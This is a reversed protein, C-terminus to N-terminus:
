MGPQSGTGRISVTTQASAQKISRMAVVLQEMAHAQQQTSAAIQIAVQAAEEVTAALDRISEGARGALEMGSKAAESGQETVTVATNAARQIENLIDNVRTTAERSQGALHRMERAVVAFGLGEDGARAAEINANLALLRSQDAIDEVANIIEGIQQTRESLALISQAIDEVQRRITEMGTVTDAVANQGNKSVQMSQQAADAVAQAQRATEAITARMQVSTALTETVVTDLQTTHLQVQQMLLAGKLVSSIQGRLSEYITGDSPGAEFFVFGLQEEQFHLPAAVTSFAKHDSWLVPPVFQGSPFREGGLPVEIRGTENYAFILNSWTEPQEPDEYLALYCGPFGMEPLSNALTDFSAALDFTTILTLGIQRLREAQQKAQFERYAQARYTTQAILARAQQWLDEARHLHDRESLYPLVQRRLASLVGQWAKVDRDMMMAQRMIKDLTVLFAGSSKGQVDDSLTTLLETVWAPAIGESSIEGNEIMDSCIQEWRAALSDPLTRDAAAKKPAYAIPGVAAQVVVPDACGCSQRVLLTTPMYKRDPVDEGRLQALIMEVALGMQESVPQRVTTLPPIVYEGREQGDFGTVVVDQPVHVGRAQLEVLAGFAVEDNSAVVAEFDIHPKLGREDLLTCITERGTVDRWDTPPSVLLPDLAIGYDNLVDVYALYREKAEPNEPPGSIFAIRRLGHVDLLHTMVDRMGQYNEILVSPIGELPVGVSAMPLPRYGECLNELAEPTVYNSLPGSSIVLGDVNETGVLRHLISGKGELGYSGILHRGLLCCILNADRVRAAEAAGAWLYGGYAVEMTDLLLGITPRSNPRRSRSTRGTNSHEIM